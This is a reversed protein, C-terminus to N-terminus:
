EGLVGGCSGAIRVLVLVRQMGVMMSGRETGTGTATGYTMHVM